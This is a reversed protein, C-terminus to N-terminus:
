RPTFFGRAVFTADPGAPATCTILNMLGPAQDFFVFTDSGFNVAFYSVVFMSTTDNVWGVRARNTATGPNISVKADNGCM